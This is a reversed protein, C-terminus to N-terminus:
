KAGYQAYYAYIATKLEDDIIRRGDVEHSVLYDTVESMTVIAKTPFGYTDSIESLASKETEGREQRDVSVCMGVVEVDGQAQIKNWKAYKPVDGLTYM